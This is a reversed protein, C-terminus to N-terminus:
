RIRSTKGKKRLKRIGPRLTDVLEIRARRIQKLFKQIAKVHEPHQEGYLEAHAHAIMVGNVIDHLSSRVPSERENM